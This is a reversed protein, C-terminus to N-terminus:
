AIRLHRAAKAERLRRLEDLLFRAREVTGIITWCERELRAMRGLALGM